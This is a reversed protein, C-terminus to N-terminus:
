QQLLFVQDVINKTLNLAAIGCELGPQQGLTLGYAILQDPKQFNCQAALDLEGSDSPIDSDRDDIEVLGVLLGAPVQYSSM